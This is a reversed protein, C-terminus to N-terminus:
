PGDGRGNSIKDDLIKSGVAFYIVPGIISVFLILVLCLIKDQFPLEKRILSILAATGLIFQVFLVPILLPLLQPLIRGAEDLGYHLKM